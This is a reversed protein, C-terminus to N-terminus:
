RIELIARLGANNCKTCVTWIQVFAVATVIRCTCKLDGGGDLGLCNEFMLCKQSTILIKRENRPCLRGIVKCFLKTSQKVTSVSIVDNLQCFERPGTVMRVPLGQIVECATDTLYDIKRVGYSVGHLYIRRSCCLRRGKSYYEGWGM